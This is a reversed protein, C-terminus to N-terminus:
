AARPRKPKFLDPISTKDKDVYRKNSERDSEAGLLGGSLAQAVRVSQDEVLKQDEEYWEQKIKMLVLRIPQHQSDLEGGALVSVQSGMDTNGSVTTDSGLGVSNVVIEKNDVFEYGGNLAQQLRDPTGRFWHLHYGPIEPAELKRVPVSMPIRRREAATKNTEIGPKNLLEM